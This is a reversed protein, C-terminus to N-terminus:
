NKIKVSETNNEAVVQVVLVQNGEFQEEVRYVDANVDTNSYLVRGQIDSIRIQKITNGLSSVVQIANGSKYVQILNSEEITDLGTTSEAIRLVFRGSQYGGEGNSFSYEYSDKGTLDAIFQGNNDLLEIRDANYRNMGTLKLTSNGAAPVRVGIPVNAGERGIYNMSLAVDGASTYIEPVYSFNHDNGKEVVPQTSSFLKTIDEGQKYGAIASPLQGVMTNTTTGYQHDRVSLRIINREEGSASRLNVPAPSAKSMTTANFYLQPLYGDSLIFFGQMPAIYQTFTSGDSTTRTNCDYTVFQTGNWLRYSNTNMTYNSGSSSHEAYFADFDLASMFPNGILIERNGEWDAPIPYNFNTFPAGRDGIFKYDSDNGTSSDRTKTNSTNAYDIRGIWSDLGETFIDYFTSVGGQYKQIRHSQLKDAKDYTPFEIIGNTTGLGFGGTPASGTHDPETNSFYERPFGSGSFAYFAFGEGAAFPETTETYSTSWTGETFHGTTAKMVNFKRMVTLPYGGYALDGSVIGKLPMSLMHWQGNALPPTSYHHSYNWFANNFDSNYGSQYFPSYMNLQVRAREYTLLDIRGVQGGQFFTIDKCFVRAATRNNGTLTPFRPATGPIFVDTTACPVGVSTFDVPNIWNDSDLWDTDSSGTWLAQSPCSPDIFYQTKESSIPRRGDAMYTDAAWSSYNPTWGVNTNFVRLSFYTSAAPQGSVPISFTAIYSYTDKKLDNIGEVNREVPVGYARTPTAPLVQNLPVNGMMVASIVDNGNGSINGTIVQNGPSTLTAGNLYLELYLTLGTWRGFRDTNPEYNAGAKFKLSFDLSQTSSNYHINYLKAHLFEQGKANGFIAVMVLIIIVRKFNTKTTKTSKM